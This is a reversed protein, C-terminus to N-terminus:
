NKNYIFDKVLKKGQEVAPQNFPNVGFLFCAVITEIMFYAM